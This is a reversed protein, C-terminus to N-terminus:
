NIYASSNTVTIFQCVGADNWSFFIYSSANISRLTDLMQPDQTTCFGSAYNKDRAYCNGSEANGVSKALGCSIYQVSDATRRSLTVGGAAARGAVNVVNDYSGYGFGAMATGAAALLAIAIAYRKM